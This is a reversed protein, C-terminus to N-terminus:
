FIFFSSKNSKKFFDIGKAVLSLIFINIPSFVFMVLYLCIDNFHVNAWIPIKEVFLNYLFTAIYRGHEPQYFVRCYPIVWSNRIQSVYQMCYFVLLLSFLILVLFYYISNFFKKIFYLM